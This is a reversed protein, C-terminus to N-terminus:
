CRTTSPAEDGSGIYLTLGRGRGVLCYSKRRKASTFAYAFGPHVLASVPDSSGASSRLRPLYVVAIGVQRLTAPYLGADFRYSAANTALLQLDYTMLLRVLQRSSPGSTNPTTPPRGPSASRATPQHPVAANDSSRPADHSQPLVTKNPFEGGAETPTATSTVGGDAVNAPGSLTAGCGAIVMVMLMVMLIHASGGCSRSVGSVTAFGQKRSKAM